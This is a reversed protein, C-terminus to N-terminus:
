GQEQWEEDVEMGRNTVSVTLRMTGSLLLYRDAMHLPSQPAKFRSTKM